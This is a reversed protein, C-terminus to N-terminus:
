KTARAEFLEAFKVGLCVAIAELTELTPNARANEILSVATQEVNLKAALEDQTWGRDKRLRRVNRGLAKAIQSSRTPFREGFGSRAM